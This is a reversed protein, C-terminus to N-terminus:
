KPEASSESITEDVPENIVAEPIVETIEDTQVPKDFKSLLGFLVIFFVSATIVRLISKSFINNM